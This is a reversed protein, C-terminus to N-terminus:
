NNRIDYVIVKNDNGGCALHNRNENWSISCIENKNFECAFKDQFGKSFRIDKLYINSNIGAIAITKSDSKITDM